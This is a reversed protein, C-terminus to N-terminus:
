AGDQDIIRVHQWKFPIQTVLGIFTFDDIPHYNMQEQMAASAAHGGPLMFLTYGDAHARAVFGAAVRGGAGPKPEVVASQGLRAQLRDAVVRATVDGNGGAGFGHLLTIPREPWAALAGFPFAAAAFVVAALAGM